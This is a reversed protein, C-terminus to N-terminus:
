CRWLPSVVDATFEELALHHVGDVAPHTASGSLYRLEVSAGNPQAPVNPVTRTCAALTILVVATWLTTGDWLEMDKRCQKKHLYGNRCLNSCYIAMQKSRGSQLIHPAVPIKM